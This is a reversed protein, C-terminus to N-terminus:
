LWRIRALRSTTSRTPVLIEAALNFAKSLHMLVRLPLSTQTSSVTITAMGEAVGTITVMGMTDVEATAYTPMNSMASWTLTDDTDADTITSQVMVTADVRVTQDAIAAGATPATNPRELTTASAVNSVQDSIGRANKAYVRYFRETEPSLGTDVHISHVDEDTMATVSTLVTFTGEKGDPSHEIVYETVEAHQPQEAQALWTMDITSPGTAEVVLGAAENPLPIPTTSGKVLETWNSRQESRSIKNVAAM